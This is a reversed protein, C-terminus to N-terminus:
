NRSAALAIEEVLGDRFRTLAGILTDIKYLSNERLKPTEVGFELAIQNNCDSICLVFRPAGRKRWTDEVYVRVSAGGDFEPYCNLKLREDVRSKRSSRRAYQLLYSV